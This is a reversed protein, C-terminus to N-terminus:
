QQRMVSGDSVGCAAMFRVFRRKTDDDVAEGRARCAQVLLSHVEKLAPSARASACAQALQTYVKAEPLVGFRGHASRLLDLAVGWSKSRACANVLVFYTSSTPQLGLGVVREFAALIRKGGLPKPSCAALAIDILHGDPKLGLSIMMGLLRICDDLEGIAAFAKVLTVYAVVDPKDRPTAHMEAYVERAKALRGAAVLCRIYTTYHVENAPRGSSRLDDFIRTAHELMGGGRCADLLIGYTMDSPALGAALMQEYLQLSLAPKDPAFGKMLTNYTIVDLPVDETRALLEVALDVAGGSFLVKLARNRIRPDLKKGNACCAELSEVLQKTDKDDVACQAINVFDHQTIKGAASLKKTFFKALDIRGTEAASWLLLSWLPASVDGIMGEMHAYAALAEQFRRKSACSRVSSFLLRAALAAEAESDVPGPQALQAMVEDLLQPLMAAKGGLVASALFNAAAEIADSRSMPVQAAPAGPPQSDPTERHTETPPVQEYLELSLKPKDPAFGEMLTSYSIADLPVDATRAVLVAALDMNGGFGLRALAKDRTAPDLKMGAANCAELIDVLQTEDKHHMVCRVMNVFDEQSINGAACRKKAFLIGLDAQGAEVASWLLLSWLTGSGSGIMGEMHAHAALAEQFCRKSACARVSSLLLRAALAANAEPGVPGPQALRAMEKDLLQPLMAAKGACAAKALFNAAAEIPDRRGKPVPAAPARSPAEIPDRRGKPVPAAPARSPQSDPTERRPPARTATAAKRAKSKKPKAGVWGLHRALIMLSIGTVFATSEWVITEQVAEEAFGQTASPDPGASASGLGEPATQAHVRTADKGLFALLAPVTM